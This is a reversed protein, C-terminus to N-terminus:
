AEWVDWERKDRAADRKDRAADIAFCCVCRRRLFAASSTSLTASKTPLISLAGAKKFERRLCDVGCDFPTSGETGEAMGEGWTSNTDIGSSVSAVAGDQREM